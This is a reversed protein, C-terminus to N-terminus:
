VKTEIYLVERVDGKYWNGETKDSWKGYLRLRLVRVGLEPELELELEGKSRCGRKFEVKELLLHRSRGALL